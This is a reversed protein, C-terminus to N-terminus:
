FWKFSVESHKEKETNINKAGACFKGGGDIFM